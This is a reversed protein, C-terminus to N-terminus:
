DEDFQFIEKLEKLGEKMDKQLQDIERFIERYKEPPNAVWEEFTQNELNSM